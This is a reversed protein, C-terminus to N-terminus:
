FCRRSGTVVRFYPKAGENPDSVIGSTCGASDLLTLQSYLASWPKSGYAFSESAGSPASHSSLYRGSTSTAILLSAYLLIASQRCEDDPYNLALCGAVGDLLCLVGSAEASSITVGRASLAAILEDTTPAAM